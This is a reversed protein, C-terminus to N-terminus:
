QKKKKKKDCSEVLKVLITFLDSINWDSQGIEQLNLSGLLPYDTKLLCKTMAAVEEADIQGL